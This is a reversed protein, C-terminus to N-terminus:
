RGTSCCHTLCAGCGRMHTQATRHDSLVACGKLSPDADWEPKKKRKDWGQPYILHRDMMHTEVTSQSGTFTCGSRSCRVHGPQYGPWRHSSPTPNFVPPQASTSAVQGAVYTSSLTYGEPTTQPWYGQPQNYRYYAQAYHSSVGYQPGYAAQSVPSYYQQQPAVPQAAATAAGRRGTTPPRSTPHM